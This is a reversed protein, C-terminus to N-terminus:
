SDQYEDLGRFGKQGVGPIGLLTDGPLSRWWLALPFILIQVEEVNNDCLADYKQFIFYM